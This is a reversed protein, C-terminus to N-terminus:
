RTVPIKYASVLVSLSWPAMFFRDGVCLVVSSFSRPPKMVNMVHQHKYLHLTCPHVQTIPLDPKLQVPRTPCDGLIPLALVANGLVCNNCCISCSVKDGAKDAAKEAEKQAEEGKGMVTEKVNQATGAVANYTQNAADQAAGAVNGAADQLNKGAQNVAYM